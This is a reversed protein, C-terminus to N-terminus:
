MWRHTKSWKGSSDVWNRHHLTTMHANESKNTEVTNMRININGLVLGCWSPIWTRSPLKSDESFMWAFPRPKLDAHQLNALCTTSPSKGELQQGIHGSALDTTAPSQSGLVWFDILGSPGSTSIPWCWAKQLINFGLSACVCVYYVCVCIYIYRYRIIKERYQLIDESVHALSYSTLIKVTM